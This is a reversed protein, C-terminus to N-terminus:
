ANRCLRIQLMSHENEKALSAISTCFYNLHGNLSFLLFELDLFFVSFFGFARSQAHSQVM